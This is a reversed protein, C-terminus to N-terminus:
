WTTASISIPSASSAPSRTRSRRASSPDISSAVTTPMPGSPKKRSRVCAPRVVSGSLLPSFVSNPTRRAAGYVGTSPTTRSRTSTSSDETSVNTSSPARM